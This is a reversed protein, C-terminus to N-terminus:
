GAPTPTPPTTPLPTSLPAPLTEPVEDKPNQGLFAGKLAGDQYMEHLRRLFAIRGTGPIDSDPGMGPAEIGQGPAAPTLNQPLLYGTNFASLNPFVPTETVGPVAPMANQALLLAAGSMNPIGLPGAAQTDRQGLISGISTLASTVGQAPAPDAAPQDPPPDAAAPAGFYVAMVLAALSAPKLM